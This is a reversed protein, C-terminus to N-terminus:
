AATRTRLRAELREADRSNRRGRRRARRTRGGFAPIRSRRSPTPAVSPGRRRRTLGILTTVLAILLLGVIASVMVADPSSMLRDATSVAENWLSRASVQVRDGLTPAGPDGQGAESKAALIRAEPPATTGTSALLADVGDSGLAVALDAWAGDDARGDLIAAIVDAAVAEAPGPEQAVAEAPGPEQALVPQVPLALAVLAALSRCAKMM